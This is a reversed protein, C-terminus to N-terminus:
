TQQGMIFKIGTTGNARFTHSKNWFHRQGLDTRIMNKLYAVLEKFYVKNVEVLLVGKDQHNHSEFLYIKQQNSCLLMTKDAPVILFFAAINDSQVLRSDIENQLQIDDTLIVLSNQQPIKLPFDIAKILQKKLLSIQNTIQHTLLIM